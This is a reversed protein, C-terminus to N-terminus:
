QAPRAAALVEVRSLLAARGSQEACSGYKPSQEVNLVGNM